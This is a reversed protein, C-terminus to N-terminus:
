STEHCEEQVAKVNRRASLYVGNWGDHQACSGRLETNLAGDM